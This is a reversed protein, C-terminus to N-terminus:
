ATAHFVVRAHEWPRAPERTLGGETRVDRFGAVHLMLEVEPKFYICLTIPREEAAALRGEVWHEMRLERTVTLELPDFAVVRHKLELETGDACTRRLGREPFPAPLAPRRGPLWAQWGREDFNPLEVDFVLTGGRELQAHMRRLARLDLARTSGVGFSECVFITRYRRPLALEAMAQRTLAVEVGEARAREACLALMDASVDCGDVDLGARRMPVLLRGTGCALDLAPQGSARVAAQFYAVDDGDRNFEAWWRAVLGHHWTESPADALEDM